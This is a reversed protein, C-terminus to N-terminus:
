KEKDNDSVPDEDAGEGQERAEPIEEGDPKSADSVAGIANELETLADNKTSLLYFKNAWDEAVPLLGMKMRGENWSLMGKTMGTMTDRRSAESEELGLNRFDFRWGEIGLGKNIIEHTLKNAILKRLPYITTYYFSRRLESAVARNASEAYGILILPVGYQGAVLRIGNLILDLYAMDQPLIGLPNAEAGKFLVLAKGANAEGTYNKEYYASVAEADAEISDEPLEIKLPPRGGNKLVSTNYHIARTLLELIANNKEFVAKGYVGATNNPRRIQIVEHDKYIVGKSGEATRKYGIKRLVGKSKHVPDVLITMDATNLGYLEAVTFNQKSRTGKTPVKEMYWDGYALYNELNATILTEITDDPNPSDFFKILKKLDSKTGKKAGKDPEIVYGGGIVGEIIRSACQISGPSNSYLSWLAAYPKGSPQEKANIKNQTSSVVYKRSKTANINKEKVEQSIVELAKNMMDEERQQIALGVADQANDSRLVFDVIPQPLKM